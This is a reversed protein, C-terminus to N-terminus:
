ITSRRITLAIRTILPPITSTLIHSTAAHILICDLLGDPGEFSESTHAGDSVRADTWPNLYVVVSLMRRLKNLSDFQQFRDAHSLPM